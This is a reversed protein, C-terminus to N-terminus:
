YFYTNDVLFAHIKQKIYITSKSSESAGNQFTRGYFLCFLQIKRRVNVKWRHGLLYKANLYNNKTYNIFIQYNHDLFRDTIVIHDFQNIEFNCIFYHM